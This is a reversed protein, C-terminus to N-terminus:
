EFKAEGDRLPGFSGHEFGWLYAAKILEPANRLGLKDKIRERHTEVTKISIKLAQATERTSRGQGILGFVELERDSLLDEPTRPEDSDRGLRGSLIHSTMRPSLYIQGERVARIAEIVRDPPEEKNIYGSAGAKLSREAFVMEDHMSIVLVKISADFARIHKILELGNNGDRLSIDILAIDCRHAGLQKLTDTIGEAQAVVRMDPQHDIILALGLRVLAHDDVILIRAAPPKGREALTAAPRPTTTKM